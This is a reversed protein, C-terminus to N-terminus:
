ENSMAAKGAPAFRMTGGDALLDIYLKGDKFFYRAASGLYKVFQDGRSDGPCLAVTAPGIKVQLSGDAAEYSGSARNCDAVISATGDTNFAVTYDAPSKVDFTDVPGTYSVWQWPQASLRGALETTQRDLEALAAQMVPDEGKLKAAETELTVPVRIDPVVGKAELNFEKTGAFTTQGMTYQFMLGGPMQIRDIPGGAGETSYQGIVTARGLKQLHQSFYECSSACNQDVLIVLPGTYALEPKPASL